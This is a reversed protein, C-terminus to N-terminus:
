TWEGSDEFATLGPLRGPEFMGSDFGFNRLYDFCLSPWEPLLALPPGDGGERKLFFFWLDAFEGHLKASYWKSGTTRLDMVDAPTFSERVESIYDRVGGAAASDLGEHNGDEDNEYENQAEDEDNDDSGRELEGEWQPSMPLGQHWTDGLDQSVSGSSIEFTTEEEPVEPLDWISNTHLLHVEGFCSTHLPRTVATDETLLALM